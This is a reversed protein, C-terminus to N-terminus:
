VKIQLGSLLLQLLGKQKSSTALAVDIGHLSQFLDYYGELEIFIFPDNIGITFCSDVDIGRYILSLRARPLALFVLKDIFSYLAKKRLTTKCGIIGGERLKFAAISKKARTTQSKQGSIMKLAALGVLLQKKDQITKKSSTSLVIKQPPAIEMITEIFCQLVLDRSIIERFYNEVRLTCYRPKKACEKDVQWFTKQMTELHFTKALDKQRQHLQQITESYKMFM